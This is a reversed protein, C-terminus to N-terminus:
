LKGAKAGSQQYSWQVAEFLIDPTIAGKVGRLMPAHVATALLQQTEPSGRETVLDCFASGNGTGSRVTESQTGYNQDSPM